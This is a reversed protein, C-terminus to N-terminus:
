LLPSLLLLPLKHVLSGRKSRRCVRYNRSRSDTRSDIELYGEAGQDEEKRWDGLCIRRRWGRRVEGRM